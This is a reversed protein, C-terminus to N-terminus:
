VGSWNRRRPCTACSHRRPSKASSSTRRPGRTTFRTEYARWRARIPSPARPSTSPLGIVEPPWVLRRASSGAISTPSSASSRPPRLPVPGARLRRRATLADQDPARAPRGRRDLPRDRAPRVDRVAPRRPCRPAAWGRSSARTRPGGAAARDRGGLHRRLRHGFGQHGPGRPSVCQTLGSRDDRRRVVRHLPGGPPASEPVLRRGSTGSKRRARHEHPDELRFLSEARSGLLVSSDARVLRSAAANVFTVTGSADTAIMGENMNDTLAVLFERSREIDQQALTAHTIDLSTGLSETGPDRRRGPRGRYARSPVSHRRRRHRDPADSGIVRQRRHPGPEGQRLSAGRSARLRPVGGLHGAVARAGDLLHRPDTRGSIWTIRRSTGNGIAWTRSGSPRACSSENRRLRQVDRLRSIGYSLEAAYESLM